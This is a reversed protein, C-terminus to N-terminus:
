KAPKLPGDDFLIEKVKEMNKSIKRKTVKAYRETTRISKHGLM